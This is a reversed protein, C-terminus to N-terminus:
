EQGEQQQQQAQLYRIVVGASDGKELFQAAELAEALPPVPPPLPEVTGGRTLLWTDLPIAHHKFSASWAALAAKRDVGALLRRDLHIADRMDEITSTGRGYLLERLRQDTVEPWQFDAM